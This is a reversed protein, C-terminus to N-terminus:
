RGPQLQAFAQHVSRSNVEREGRRIQFLRKEELELCSLKNWYVLGTDLGIKYPLDVFVDRVPTHGFLVTFPFAHPHRVFEDRIWLFDEERQEELPRDPVLGAHVCLFPGCQYYLRLSRLFALHDAPLRDLAGRATREEVAYSRLTADGGNALFAEGYAGHEGLFALFMDEHNGRLFICHPGEGVLRILREIVAKPSPGRDVYDGLFIVTDTAGPALTDLLYNLEDACGHLDGVVFTRASTM